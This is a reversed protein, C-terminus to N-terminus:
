SCVKETINLSEHTYSALDNFNSGVVYKYQLAWSRSIEQM